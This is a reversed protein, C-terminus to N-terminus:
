QNVRQLPAIRIEGMQMVDESHGVVTYDIGAYSVTDGYTVDDSPLCALVHTSIAMLQDSLLSRSAGAQWLAALGLVVTATTSASGGKGDPTLTTRSVTVADVLNLADRYSV